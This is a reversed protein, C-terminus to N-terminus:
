QQRFRTVITYFKGNYQLLWRVTILGSKTGQKISIQKNVTNNPLTHSARVLELFIKTLYKRNFFFCSVGKFHYSIVKVNIYSYEILRMYESANWAFPLAIRDLCTFTEDSKLLSENLKFSRFSELSWHHSQLSLTM